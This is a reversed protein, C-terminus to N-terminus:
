GIVEYRKQVLDGGRNWAADFEYTTTDKQHIRKLQLVIPNTRTKKLVTAKTVRDYDLGATPVWEVGSENFRAMFAPTAGQLQQGIVLCYPVKEQDAYAVQTEAILHLVVAAGFDNEFGTPDLDPRKPGNCGVTLLGALLIGLFAFYPNNTM